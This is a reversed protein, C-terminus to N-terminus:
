RRTPGGLLALWVSPLSVSTSVVVVVFVSRFVIRAGHTDSSTLGTWYADTEKRTVLM